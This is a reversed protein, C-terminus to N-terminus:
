LHMVWSEVENHHADGMEVAQLVTVPANGARQMM